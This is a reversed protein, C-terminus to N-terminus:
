YKKRNGEFHGGTTAFDLADPSDHASRDWAENKCQTCLHIAGKSTRSYYWLPSHITLCDNCLKKSNVRSGRKSYIILQEPKEEEKPPAHFENRKQDFYKKRADVIPINNKKAWAEIRTQEKANMDAIDSQTLATKKKWSKSTKSM